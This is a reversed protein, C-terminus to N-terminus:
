LDELRPRLTQSMLDSSDDALSVETALLYQGRASAMVPDLAPRVDANGAAVLPERRPESQWRHAHEFYSFDIQGLCIKM